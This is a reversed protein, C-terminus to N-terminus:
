ATLFLVVFLLKWLKLNLLALKLNIELCLKSESCLLKLLLVKSIDMLRSGNKEIERIVDNRAAIEPHENSEPNEVADIRPPVVLEAEQELAQRNPKFTDYAGDASVQNIPEEVQELLDEFVESDHTDNTTLVAAVVEQTQEDIGLHLKRWTRRKDHGHQRVQLSGEGFIKLFM